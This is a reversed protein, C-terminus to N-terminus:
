KQRRVTLGVSSSPFMEPEANASTLFITNIFYGADDGPEFDMGAPGGGAPIETNTSRLPPIRGDAGARTSDIM